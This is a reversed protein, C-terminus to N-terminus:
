KFRLFRNCQKNQMNRLQLEIKTLKLIKFNFSKGLYKTTLINNAVKFRGSYKRELKGDSFIEISMSDNKSFTMKDRIKLGNNDIVDRLKWSGLLLDTNIDRKCNSISFLILIFFLPPKM